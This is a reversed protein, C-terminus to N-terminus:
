TYKSALEARRNIASVIQQENFLNAEKIKNLLLHHYNINLDRLRFSCYVLQLCISDSLTGKTNAVSLEQLLFTICNSVFQLMLANTDASELLNEARETTKETLSGKTTDITVDNNKDLNNSEKDDTTEGKTEPKKLDEKLSIEAISDDQETSNEKPTENNSEKKIFNNEGEKALNEENGKNTENNDETEIKEEAEPENKKNDAEEDMNINMNILNPISLSEKFLPFSTEFLNVSTFTYERLVEIKRKIMMEVIYSNSNNKEIAYSEIERQIFIYRMTLFVQLLTSSNDKEDFPPIASLYKLIKKLSNVTVNTALLKVLGTLMTTSIENLVKECIDDIISSGAFKSQLSKSHTFLMIAEQYHGTKICTRVLFPLEMLDTINDLNELVLPLNNLNNGFKDYNSNLMSRKRLKELVNQFDDEKKSKVDTQEETNMLDDIRDHEENNTKGNTHNGTLTDKSVNNLEKLQQLERHISQLRHSGNNKLIDELVTEKNEVLITKIKKELVAIEADVEAIDEVISGPIPKSSFYTTYDKTDSQLINELEANCYDIQQKTLKPGPLNLESLVVDM